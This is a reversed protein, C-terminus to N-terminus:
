CRVHAPRVMLTGRYSVKSNHKRNSKPLRDVGKLINDFLTFM